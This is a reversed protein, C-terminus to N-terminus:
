RPIDIDENSGPITFDYSECEDEGGISSKYWEGFQRRLQDVIWPRNALGAPVRRAIKEEFLNSISEAGGVLGITTSIHM